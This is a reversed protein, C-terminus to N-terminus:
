HLTKNILQTLTNVAKFNVPKVDENKIKIKFRKEVQVVIELVDVSDLQLGEGVISMDDTIENSELELDFTEILM